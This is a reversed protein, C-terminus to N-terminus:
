MIAAAIAMIMAIAITPTSISLFFYFWVVLFDVKEKKLGKFVLFFSTPSFLSKNLKHLSQDNANAKKEKVNWHRLM